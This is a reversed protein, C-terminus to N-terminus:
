FDQPRYRESHEASKKPSRGFAWVLLGLALSGLLEGFLVSYSLGVFSVLAKPFEPTIWIPAVFTRTLHQLASYHIRYVKPLAFVLFLLFVITSMLVSLKIAGLRALSRCAKAIISPLRVVFWIGFAFGVCIFLIGILPLAINDMKATLSLLVSGILSPIIFLLFVLLSSTRKNPVM